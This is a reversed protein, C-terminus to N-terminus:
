LWGGGVGEKHKIEDMMELHPKNCFSKLNDAFCFDTRFCKLMQGLLAKSPGCTRMSVVSVCEKQLDM